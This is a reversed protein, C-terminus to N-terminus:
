PRYTSEGHDISLGFFVKSLQPRGEVFSVREKIYSIYIPLLLVITKPGLNSNVRTVFFEEVNQAPHEGGQIVPVDIKCCLDVTFFSVKTGLFLRPKPM